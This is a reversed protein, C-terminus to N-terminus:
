WCTSRAAHRRPEVARSLTPVMAFTSRATGPSRTPMSWRPPSGRRRGARVQGPEPRDARRSPRPRLGQCRPGALLEGAVASLMITKGAGTPAVGLTNGHTASRLSAASSSSNRAPAFSCPRDGESRGPRGVPVGPAPPPAASSHRAASAPQQPAYRRRAAASGIPLPMATGMLPPMTRHDPTVASRIENKDEGNATRHRHRHPGRVRDRRSRAFGTIRRATQAEPSNDKDSIGRASNLIGRVLSRGMNAWDPGKPSYLGILSWIKRRAYPGELVTYEADLYVAGTTGRRPMAAPGARRRSRRLRRPPHDAAGQRAHGEPHPQREAQRRQLRELREDHPPEQILTQRQPSRRCRGSRCAGSPQLDPTRSPLPRARRDQRDPPRPSTGRRARPPRLPGQRSLGLPQADPLRLRPPPRRDGKTEAVEAMTMVEDVIGPLELGTKAGDIQPVFVKRNFDDLKEDLIGVFLVNKAAHAAPPHALRDDRPRAARLRRARGAQRDEGLLGRAPGECWQFCLRGAVTISDIFITEYRDLAAPDGFKACVEDFHAQSYPQDDRLAPNPGGIFVAFDRCEEWTRPRITDGSWGEIALDGAELDFFLTTDRRDADLAPPDQRHRDQRLHLGQHRPARGAAPRRPHHPAGNCARGQPLPCGPPAFSPTSASGFSWDPHQPGSVIPRM